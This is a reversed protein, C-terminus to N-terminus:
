LATNWRHTSSKMPKERQLAICGLRILAELLEFRAISLASLTLSALLFVLMKEGKRRGILGSAEEEEEVEVREGRGKKKGGKAEEGKGREM